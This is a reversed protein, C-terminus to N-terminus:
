TTPCHVASPPLVQSSAHLRVPPPVGGMAHPVTVQGAPAKQRCYVQPSPPGHSAVGVLESQKDISPFIQSHVTPEHTGM